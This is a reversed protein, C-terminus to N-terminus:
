KFKYKGKGFGKVKIIVEEKLLKSIVKSSGSLSLNLINSVDNRSFCEKDNLKEYLISQNKDSKRFNKNSEDEKYDIHLYRNKLENDENFLLNRLFLELYKTTEFIGKEFNSYNARVLANRFYWSNNLFLDNNLNFGFKRLYKILFVATTRTNGEFFPHIQWLNAIFRAIHKIFEDKSLNSYDFNKEEKFDFELTEKILNSGTYIVTDKNLVWEKKSINYNRIKGAHDYINNFLRKHIDLFQLYSFTFSKDNLVKAINISVLDAVQTKDKEEPKAKYYSNILEEIKTYEIDKTVLEKLYSSTELGDVKQLGISTSWIYENESVLEDEKKYYNEFNEKNM